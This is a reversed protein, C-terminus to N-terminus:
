DFFGELVDFKEFGKKLCGGNQEKKM